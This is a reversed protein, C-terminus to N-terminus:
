DDGVKAYDTEVSDPYCQLKSDIRSLTYDISRKHSSPVDTRLRDGNDRLSLTTSSNGEPVRRVTAPPFENGSAVAEAKDEFGLYPDLIHDQLQQLLDWVTMNQFFGKYFIYNHGVYDKNYINTYPCTSAANEECIQKWEEVTMNYWNCADELNDYVVNLSWTQPDYIMFYRKKENLSLGFKQFLRFDIQYTPM